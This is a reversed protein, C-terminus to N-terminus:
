NNSNIESTVSCAARMGLEYSIKHITTRLIKHTIRHFVHLTNRELGGFIASMGKTIYVTQHLINKLM